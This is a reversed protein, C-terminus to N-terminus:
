DRAEKPDLKDLLRQMTRCMHAFDKAGALKSWRREIDAVRYGAALM